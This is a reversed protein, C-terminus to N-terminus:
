ESSARGPHAGSRTAAGAEPTVGLAHSDDGEDFEDHIDVTGQSRGTWRVTLDGLPAVQEFGVQGDQFLELLGLFRAVVHHRTPCDAVLARFSVAGTTRLRAVLIEAQERVSVPPAHVHDLTIVPAPRPTLADAAMRALDHPGIAVVVEPLLRALPEELSVARPIREAEGAMWDAIVAAAERYARYQLLRAFLLDRAELVALDEPDEVEGSPLLRAAKLDLLTAAIVLFESTIDLDWQPSRARIYDVFDDTVQSLAIETVDLTKKAILSLLVEFPGSFVELSVEFGPALGVERGPAATVARGV